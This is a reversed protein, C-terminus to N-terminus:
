IIYIYIYIYIYLLKVNSQQKSQLPAEYKFYTIFKYILNM